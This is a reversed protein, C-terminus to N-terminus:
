GFLACKFYIWCCAFRSNGVTQLGGTGFDVVRRVVPGIRAGAVGSCYSPGTGCLVVVAPVLGGLIRM